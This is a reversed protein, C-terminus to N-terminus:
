PSPAQTRDSVSLGSFTAHILSQNPGLVNVSSKNVQVGLKGPRFALQNGRWSPYKKQPM